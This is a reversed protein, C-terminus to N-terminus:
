NTSVDATSGDEGDKGLIKIAEPNTDIAWEIVAEWTKRPGYQPVRGVFVDDPLEIKLRGLKRMLKDSLEQQM